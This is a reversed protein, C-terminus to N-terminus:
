NTGNIRAPSGDPMYLLPRPENHAQKQEQIQFLMKTAAAFLDLCLNADNLPGDLRVQGNDVTITLSVKM